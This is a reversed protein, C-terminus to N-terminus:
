RARAHRLFRVIFGDFAALDALDHLSLRPIAHELTSTM